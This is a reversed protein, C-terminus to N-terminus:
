KSKSNFFKMLYKAYENNSMKDSLKKIQNSDIYGMRYAIEEICSIKMGQRKEITQVFQSAELLSDHTGTDLWAYGRSMQEVKLRKQNLFYKNTDTIELESRLSPKQKKAVKIVDNPYFYLGSVAYNSKPEKPKEEISLPNGVSDFSV